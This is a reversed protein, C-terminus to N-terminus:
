PLAVISAIRLANRMAQRIPTAYRSVAGTVMSSPATACQDGFQHRVGIQPTVRTHPRDDRRREILVATEIEDALPTADVEHDVRSRITKRDEGVKGLLEHQRIGLSLQQRARDELVDFSADRHDDRRRMEARLHAERAAVDRLVQARHHDHRHRRIVTCRDAHRVLLCEFEERPQGVPDLDRDHDLVRRHRADRQRRRQQRPHRHLDLVDRIEFDLRRERCRLQALDNTEAAVCDFTRPVALFRDRQEGIEIRARRSRHRATPIDVPKTRDDVVIQRTTALLRDGAIVLPQRQDIVFIALAPQM